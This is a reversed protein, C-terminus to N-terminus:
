EVDFRYGVGRITGVYRAGAGLKERLRRVHTDVTRTDMDTEYGWADRLLQERTQVHGPRRVLSVLLKFEIATLDIRKNKYIVEHRPIDVKLNGASLCESSPTESAPANKEIQKRVRLVLERPSFPKTVYDNAGLELGLVRDLESAKASLMVIPVASTKQDKRLIKCVEMGDMGPLMVDLVIVDPALARAKEIATSGDSATETTYGPKRM